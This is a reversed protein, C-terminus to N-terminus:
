GARAPDHVLRRAPRLDPGHWRGDHTPHRTYPCYPRYGPLQPPLIQCTPRAATAGGDLRVIRGRDLALNLARRVRRDNFTAAAVNLFLFQMGVM